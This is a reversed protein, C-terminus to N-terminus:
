VKEKDMKSVISDFNSKNGWYADIAENTDNNLADNLTAIADAYLLASNGPLKQRPDCLLWYKLSPASPTLEFAQVDGGQKNQALAPTCICLLTILFLKCRNM